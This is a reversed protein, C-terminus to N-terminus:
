QIGELMATLDGYDEAVWTPQVDSSGLDARASVGTLILVSRVGAAVGAAIDTELNDGIMVAQGATIGMRKLAIDVMRRGPKGIIVPETGAAAAVAAVIAGTGPCWGDDQLLAKDPNTAVFRAGGRILRVARTLKAYNFHRDFGVLVTKVGTDAIEFGAKRLVNRMPAEGIVFVSGPELLGAAAQASTLVESPRCGIGLERLHAAVVAASRNARNTMFLTQWGGARVLRVFDAAGPVASRGRYLTGDLDFIMGRPMISAM